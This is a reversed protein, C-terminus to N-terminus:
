ERRIAFTDAYGAPNAGDWVRGDIFVQPTQLEPVTVGVHRAAERYLETQNIRAAIEAYDDRRDIMGWRQYQTLFWVGDDPWPYNVHGGAFFRVPLRTAHVPEGQLRPAIMEAPVGIFEPQALRRAIEACHGDEDLWRCAELMTQVLARSTNPFRSVFDRRCALVKEPHDPWIESSYVVTAGVGRAQAVANWPEGVCLGDLKDQALADVMQPPPIVVSEIDRLPHVRQAALWYYLWMAHTGTPFTQAFVPKRGLTALAEALTRHSGLAETLRRSLTIAQGNRNLVMLVAMDTQPGGLGLQVGYVLGYLAHAADLDGSILKDRVAAWSPQRVLELTLGHAHGFEYLKAAVLPAADSLAVFGVRLHTKELGSQAPRAADPRNPQELQTM